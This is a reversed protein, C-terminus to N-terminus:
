DNDNTESAEADSEEPEDEEDLLGPLLQVIMQKADLDVQQVVDAIAPLLVERKQGPVTIVYVENAGTFLVETIHGLKKGDVTQVQLGVIDHVWYTDDELEVADSDPIFLWQNRLGEAANRTDIGSLKFLLQAKHPRIE